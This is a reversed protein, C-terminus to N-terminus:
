PNPYTGPTKDVATVTLTEGIYKDDTSVAIVGTNSNFNLVGKGNIAYKINASKTTKTVGAADVQVVEPENTTAGLNVTNADYNVQMETIKGQEAVELTTTAKKGNPLKFTVEYTGVKSPTFVFKHDGNNDITEYTMGYEKDGLKAVTSGSTFANSSSFRNGYVDKAAVKFTVESDVAVTTKPAKTIEVNTAVTASFNLYVDGSANGAAVTVVFDGSKTATVDFEVKGRNDTKIEEKELEIGSKNASVTVKQEKVPQGDKNTVTATVVYKDISNAQAGKYATAKTLGDGSTAGTVSFAVKNASTSLANFEGTVTGNASM